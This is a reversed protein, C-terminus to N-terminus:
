ELTVSLDTSHVVIVRWDFFLCQTTLNTQFGYGRNIILITFGVLINSMIVPEFTVLQPLLFLV